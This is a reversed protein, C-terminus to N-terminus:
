AMYDNKYSIKLSPDGCKNGGAEVTICRYM